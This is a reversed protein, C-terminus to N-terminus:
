DDLQVAPAHPGFIAGVGGAQDNEHAQRALPLVRPAFRWVGFTWVGFLGSPRFGTKTGKGTQFNRRRTIQSKARQRKPKQKPHNLEQRKSKKAALLRRIAKLGSNTSCTLWRRAAKRVSSAASSGACAAM